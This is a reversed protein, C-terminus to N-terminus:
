KITNHAPKVGVAAFIGIEAREGKESTACCEEGIGLVRVDILGAGSFLDEVERRDFGMWRDRHETRLFSATHRDLDTVVVKGGPKVIRAMERVAVGPSEVHHLLMNAFAFDVECDPLPLREASGLKYEVGSGLKKKAEELMEPSEDVAIVRLGAGVLGESV